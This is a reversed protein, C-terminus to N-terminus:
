RHSPGGNLVRVEGRVPEAVREDAVQEVCADLHVLDPLKGAVGAQLGRRPVCMRLLQWARPIHQSLRWVAAIHEMPAIRMPLRRPHQARRPQPVDGRGLPAAAPM